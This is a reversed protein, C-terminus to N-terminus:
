NQSKLIPSAALWCSENAGTSPYIPILSRTLSNGLPYFRVFLNSSVLDRNTLRAKVLMETSQCTAVVIRYSMLDKFPPLSFINNEIYCHPLLEQPVEAFTRSFENLRFMAHPAFLARLRLALTDAAASSPACILISGSFDTDKALQTVAEVITKTKGTGPPGNIIYCVSGYNRAQIASVAKQIAFGNSFSM